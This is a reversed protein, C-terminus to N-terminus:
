DGIKEAAEVVAEVSSAATKKAATVTAKASSQATAAGKKVPASKRAATKATSKATSKAATKAQSVTTKATSKLGSEAVKAAKTAQTNTTKAKAVTTKASKVAEQTSEQKRIRSVLDEGRKALETYTESATAVNENLLAQVKGPLAQAEAQFQAQLELLRAEIADRVTKADTSFAEVRGNVASVAQDYDIGAVNKQLHGAKASVEAVYDRVAEVALDAAGVGALLSRTAETKIDFTTKAM